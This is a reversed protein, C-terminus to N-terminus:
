DFGHWGRCERVLQSSKDRGPFVGPQSSNLPGCARNGFHAQVRGIRRMGRRLATLLYAPGLCSPNTQAGEEEEAALGIECGTEVM